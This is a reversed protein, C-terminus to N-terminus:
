ALLNQERFLTFCSVKPPCPAGHKEICIRWLLFIQQCWRQSIQLLEWERWGIQAFTLVVPIFDSSYWVVLDIIADFDRSFFITTKKHLCIVSFMSQWGPVTKTKVAIQRKKWDPTVAM